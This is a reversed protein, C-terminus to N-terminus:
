YKPLNLKIVLSPRGFINISHLGEQTTGVVKHIHRGSLFDFREISVYESLIPKIRTAFVKAIIKYLCNCLSIPRVGDFSDICYKKPIPSLFISNLGGEM